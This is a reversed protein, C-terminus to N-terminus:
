KRLGTVWGVLQHDSGNYTEVTLSSKGLSATRGQDMFDARHWHGPLPASDEDARLWLPYASLARARQDTFADSTCKLTDNWFSASTFIVPPINLQAEITQTLSVLGEIYSECDRRSRHRGDLAIAPPLEGMDGSLVSVFNRAQDEIGRASRYRHVAGRLLGCESMLEWNESFHKESSSRGDTATVYAFAVSAKRVDAWAMAAVPKSVFVGVADATDGAGADFGDGDSSSAACTRSPPALVPSAGAPPVAAPAAPDIKGIDEHVHSEVSSVEDIAEIFWSPKKAGV